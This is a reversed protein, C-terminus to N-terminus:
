SKAKSQYSYKVFHNWLLTNSYSAIKDQFRRAIQRFWGILLIANSIKYLDNVTLPSSLLSCFDDYKSKLSNELLFFSLPNTDFSDFSDKIHRAFMIQLTIVAVYSSQPLIWDNLTSRVYSVLSEAL